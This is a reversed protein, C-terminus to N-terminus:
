FDMESTIINDKYKEWILDIKKELGEKVLSKIKDNDSIPVYRRIGDGATFHVQGLPTEGILTGFVRYYEKLTKINEYERKQSETKEGEEEESFLNTM